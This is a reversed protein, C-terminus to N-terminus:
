QSTSLDPLAAVWDMDVTKCINYLAEVDYHWLAESSDLLPRVDYGIEDGLEAVTIGRAAIQHAVREAIHRFTFTRQIGHAEAGLLLVRPEVRVIEALRVLDGLTPVTFAEDDYAELDDYSALSIGLRRAIESEDLEIKLRADRIRGAVSPWERSADGPFGDLAREARSRETSAM